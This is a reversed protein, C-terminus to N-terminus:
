QIQRLPYGFQLNILAPRFPGLLKFLHPLTCSKRVQFARSWFVGRIERVECFFRFLEHFGHNLIKSSRLGRPLSDPLIQGLWITM